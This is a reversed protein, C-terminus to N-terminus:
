VIIWLLAVDVVGVIVIAVHVDRRTSKIALIIIWVKIAVKWFLGTEVLVVILTKAVVWGRRWVLVEICREVREVQQALM